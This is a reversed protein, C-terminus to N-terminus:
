LLAPLELPPQHGALQEPHDGRVCELEPEVSGDADGERAGDRAQPLHPAPRSTAPTAQRHEEGALVREILEEATVRVLEETSRHLGRDEVVLAGLDVGLVEQARRM